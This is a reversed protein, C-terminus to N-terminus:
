RRVEEEEEEEVVWGRWRRGRFVRRRRDERRRRGDGGRSRMGEMEGEGIIILELIRTSFLNSRPYHCM